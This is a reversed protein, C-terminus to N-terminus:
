PLWSRWRTYALSNVIVAPVIPAGALNAIRGIGPVISGGALVSSGGRRFGGEPFMALLRGRRLRDLVIRVTPADPRSRDLPFANMSGYFWAVLPNRFVETISLFDVNRPVHRMLLPIDYPSTHNAALLCPGHPPINERGQVIPASTAWLAHRGVARIARYFADSM